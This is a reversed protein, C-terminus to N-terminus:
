SLYWSNNMIFLSYWIINYVNMFLKIKSVLVYIWDNTNFWTPWVPLTLRNLPSLGFHFPLANSCSCILGAKLRKCKKMSSLLGKTFEFSCLHMVILLPQKGVMSPDLKVEPLNDIIQIRMCKLNEKLCHRTTLNAADLQTLETELMGRLILNLNYYLIKCQKKGTTILKDPPCLLPPSSLMRPMWEDGTVFVDLLDMHCHSGCFRSFCGCVLFSSPLLWSCIGSHPSYEWM